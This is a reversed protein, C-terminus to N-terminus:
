RISVLEKTLRLGGIRVEAVYVGPPLRLSSIDCSTGQYDGSAVVRGIMDRIAVHAAGDGAAFPWCVHLSSQFPNPYAEIAFAGPTTEPRVGLKAYWLVTAVDITHRLQDANEGLAIVVTMQVSDESKMPMNKLGFTHSIDGPGTQQYWEIMSRWKAEKTYDHYSSVDGQTGDNRIAHYQVEAGHPIASIIKMGVFPYGPVVSNSIATSTASDFHTMNLAGSLGIDWDFFLAVATSDTPPASSATPAKFLTYDLVLANAASGTTFEYARQHVNVGVQLALDAVSDSYACAIEQVANANDPPTVYRAPINPNFDEDASSADQSQVVDVVHSADTGIMLGGQFMLAKGFPQITSPANKWEFGSGFQNHTVDNYGISGKSSITTTINNRNLDLYTPNIVFSFFDVDPGYHVLSDFFTVKFVVTTNPAVTDNVKLHLDAQLNSVSQLTGAQGFSVVKPQFSIASGGKYVEVYGRLQQVPKLYNLVDLVVGGSEGPSFSGQGFDDAITVAEIRASHSNTDTVASDARILGHGQLDRRNSDMIASGSTARVQQMAQGATMWPFRQRVLAVVGVTNPCAMSTGDETGYTNPPITSLVGAGPASVSVHTNFNSRTDIVGGSGVMAVSLVHKYSAPYLDNNDALGYNGAAAIVACDKAYAYDVVDQEAVSYASGGWSCNVAKAHMDAAYIIGQFGFDLNSGEDPSIKIALIRAGFAVGVIGKGNNGTAAMLGATHTGHPADGRTDNDPTDGQPGDFDWGHWDDIMGNHDDDVGNARKDVGNSDIGIEGQNLYIASALDEHTWDTGNDADALLMSSDCRVVDWAQEAHILQIGYQQSLLPDNPVFALPHRYHRAEALEIVSSKCSLRAAAEPSLSDSYFLLFCRSLREEAGRLQNLGQTPQAITFSPKPFLQPNSRERIDEFAISHTPLYPRLRLGHFATPLGLIRWILSDDELSASYISNHSFTPDSAPRVTEFARALEAVREPAVRILLSRPIEDSRTQAFGQASCTLLVLVLLSRM